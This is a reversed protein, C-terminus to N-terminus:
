SIICIAIANNNTHSISIEIQKNKLNFKSLLNEPIKLYPSNNTNHCVEIQNLLLSTIGTGIAKLFAEKACWFGALHIHPSAFSKAYKIENESFIRNDFKDIFRNTEVIDIGVM